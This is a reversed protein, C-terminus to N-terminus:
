AARDPEVRMGAGPVPQRDSILQLQQELLERQAQALNQALTWGAADVAEHIALYLNSNLREVVVDPYVVLKVLVLCRVQRGEGAEDATDVFVSVLGVQDRLADLALHARCRALRNVDKSSPFRSALIEINM